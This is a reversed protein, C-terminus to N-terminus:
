LAGTDIQAHLAYPDDDVTFPIDEQIVSNANSSTRHLVLLTLTTTTQM